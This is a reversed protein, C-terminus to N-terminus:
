KSGNLAAYVDNWTVGAQMTVTEDYWNIELGKLLASDLVVGQHSCYGGYSHRGGMIRVPVNAAYLTSLALSVDDYRAPQLILSPWVQIAKNWLTAAAQYQPDTVRLVQGGHSIITSELTPFSDSGAGIAHFTSLFVLVVHIQLGNM